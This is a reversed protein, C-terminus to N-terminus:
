ANKMGNRHRYIDGATINEGAAIARQLNVIKQAYVKDRRVERRLIRKQETNLQAFTPLYKRDKRLRRLASRLEAETVKM